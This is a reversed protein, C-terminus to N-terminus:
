AAAHLADLAAGYCDMVVKRKLSMKPTLMGNDISFEEAILLFDRIQEYRKFDKSHADIESRFLNRVEERELIQEPEGPIGQSKAWKALAERDPVILAVNFPKNFGHVFAQLIYPSIQLMDELPAPVVYKGNELKYQEKIRGTIYLYGDEDIRGLDGTCFAGDDRIVEKTEAELGHYGLMVNAGKVLIEGDESETDDLAGAALEFRSACGECGKELAIRTMCSGLVVEASRSELRRVRCSGRAVGVTQVGDGLM